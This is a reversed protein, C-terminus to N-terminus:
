ETVVKACCNPCFKPPIETDCFTMIGNGKAGCADCEYHDPWICGDADEEEYVLRMHCTEVGATMAIAQKATVTGETCSSVIIGRGQPRFKYRVGNIVCVTLPVKDLSEVSWWEIGREDLLARIKESPSM